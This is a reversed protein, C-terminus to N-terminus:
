ELKDGAQMDSGHETMEADNGTNVAAKTTQLAAQRLTELDDVGTGQKQDDHSQEVAAPAAETSADEEHRSRKSKKHSHEKKHRKSHKPRPSREPSLSTQRSSKTKHSESRNPSRVDDSRAHTTGNAEEHKSPQSDVLVPEIYLTACHPM